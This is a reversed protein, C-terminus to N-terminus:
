DAIETDIVSGETNLTVYIVNRQDAFKVGRLMEFICGTTYLANLACAITAARVLTRVPPSLNM